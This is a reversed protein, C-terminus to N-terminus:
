DVRVSIVKDISVHNYWIILLVSLNNEDAYSDPAWDIAEIIVM